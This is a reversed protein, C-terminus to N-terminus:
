KDCGRRKIGNDYVPYSQNIQRKFIMGKRPWGIGQDLKVCGEYWWDTEVYRTSPIQKREACEHKRIFCENRWTKSKAIGQFAKCAAQIVEKVQRGSGRAIRM